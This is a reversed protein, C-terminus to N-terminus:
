PESSYTTYICMKTRCVQPTLTLVPAGQPDTPGFRIYVYVRISVTSMVVRFTSAADVESVDVVNSVDV